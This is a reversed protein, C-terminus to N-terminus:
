PNWHMFPSWLAVSDAKM